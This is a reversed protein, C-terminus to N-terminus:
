RMGTTPVTRAKRNSVNNGDNLHLRWYIFSTAMTFLGMAIFAHHLAPIVQDPKTQDLGRLFWAAILSAFAVAFSLSLQQGTSAISSAKSTEENEIDAYILSNMSTLQLSM